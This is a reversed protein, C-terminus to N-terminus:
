VAFGTAPMGVSFGTSQISTIEARKILVAARIRTKMLSENKNFSLDIAEINM